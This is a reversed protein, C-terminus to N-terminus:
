GGATSRKKSKGGGGPGPRRRTTAASPAGRGEQEDLFREVLGRVVGAMSFGQGTSWRRLREHLEPPLRVPLMATPGAVETGPYLRSAPDGFFLVDPPGAARIFPLPGASKEKLLAGLVQDQERQPLARVAKVLLRAARDDM